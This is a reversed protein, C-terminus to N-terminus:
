CSLARTPDFQAFTRGPTKLAKLVRLVEDVSRGVRDDHIVEYRVYGEPDIIYVGRASQGNEDLVGYAQSVTQTRDSALPFDLKGIHFEMWAVHSFVGDTSVGLLEAELQNLAPVAANFALVETPCVFTFDAPYFFLVLWKGKYGALTAEHDLTDLDKTTTMRFDPAQKGLLM